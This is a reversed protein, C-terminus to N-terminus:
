EAKFAFLSGNLDAAFLRGAFALPPAAFGFLADDARHETSFRWELRGSRLDLASLGGDRKGVYNTTTGNTVTYEIRNGREPRTWAWGNVRTTWMARGTRQDLRYVRQADSSGILIDSRGVNPAADVWSWWVYHTWARRGTRKDIAVLDYSRSGALILPGASGLDRPVAGHTDYTWLSAGDGIRVARVIGDLGAFYVRGGEVIPTGTIASGICTKRQEVGDAARLVHVCGDRSGVFLKGDSLIPAASYHDWESNRSTIPVPVKLPAGLPASWIIKGSRADLKAARADAGVFIARGSVVAAARVPSGLTASWILRGAAPSISVVRGDLTGIILANTGPDRVIGGVIPSGLNATWLPRPAPRRPPILAPQRPQPSRRFTVAIKYLPVLGAPIIGTLAGDRTRALTSGAETLDVSNADYSYHTLPADDTGVSPISFSVVGREGRQQFHLYLEDTEGNHSALGRWWGAPDGRDVAPQAATPLAFGLSAAALLRKLRPRSSTM